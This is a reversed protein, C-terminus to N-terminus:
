KLAKIIDSFLKQNERIATALGIALGRVVAEEKDGLVHALNQVDVLGHLIEHILVEGQRHRHMGKSLHIEQAESLYLGYSERANIHDMERIVIDLHGLRIKSM